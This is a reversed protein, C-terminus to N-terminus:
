LYDSGNIRVKIKRLRCNDCKVNSRARKQAQGLSMLEKQSQGSIDLNASSPSFHSNPVLSPLPDLHARIHDKMNLQSDFHECFPCHVYQHKEQFHTREEEPLFSTHCERCTRLQHENVHLEVQDPAVINECYQCQQWAHAQKKHFKLGDITDESGCFCSVKQPHSVTIHTRLEGETFAKNCWSCKLWGHDECLHADIKEELHKQQCISCDTLRHDEKVHVQLLEESEEARKCFTCFLWAHKDVQHYPLDYSFFVQTCVSCSETNHTQVHGTAKSFGEETMPCAPCRKFHHQKNAHKWLKGPAIHLECDSYPCRLWQHASLYHDLVRDRCRDLVRDRCGTCSADDRFRHVIRLHEGFNDGCERKCLPCFLHDQCIHDMLALDDGENLMEMCTRCGDITHSQIHGNLNVEDCRLCMSDPHSVQYHNKDAVENCIPCLEERHEAVHDDYGSIPIATNCVRCVTFDQQILRECGSTDCYSSETCIAGCECVTFSNSDPIGFVDPKGANEPRPFFVM